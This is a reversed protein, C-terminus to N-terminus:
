TRVEASIDHFYVADRLLCKLSGYYLQILMFAMREISTLAMPSFCLLGNMASQADNTKDLRGSLNGHAMVVLHLFESLIDFGGM